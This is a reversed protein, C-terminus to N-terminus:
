NFPIRPMHEENITVKGMFFDKIIAISERVCNHVYLVSDSAAAIAVPEAVGNAKAFTMSRYMHYDSTIIGVSPIYDPPYVKDGPGKPIRRRDFDATIAKVASSIIGYTSEAKAELLMNDSPVGNLSLYNYMAFAEPIPDGAEQGGALIFVTRPSEKSLELAEDLRYMLTKSIGNSYVRAGMVICYDVRREKEGYDHSATIVLHMIFVFSLLALAFSTFIFTPLFEPMGDRNKRSINKLMMGMGAFAVAFLPWVFCVSTGIGSYGIIVGFYVICLGACIFFIASLLKTKMYETFEVPLHVYRVCVRM